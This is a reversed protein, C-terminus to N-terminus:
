KSLVRGLPCYDFKFKALKVRANWFDQSFYDLLFESFAGLVFVADYRDILDLQADLIAAPTVCGRFDKFSLTKMDLLCRVRLAFIDIVEKWHNFDMRANANPNKNGSLTKYSKVEDIPILCKSFSQCQGRRYDYLAEVMPYNIYLKGNETENDFVQMMKIIADAASMEGIALNNQHPDFDFFLYVQSVARRSVGQLKKQADPVNERLLEVIDMEFDDDALTKYLMYINEAAPISIVEVRNRGKELFCSAMENIFRIDRSEGEVIFLILPKNM